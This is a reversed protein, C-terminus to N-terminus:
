RTQTRVFMRLSEVLVFAALISLSFFAPATMLTNGEGRYLLELLIGAVISEWFRPYFLLGISMLLLTLYLPGFVASVLVASSVFLRM